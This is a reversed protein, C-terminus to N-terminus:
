YLISYDDTYKTHLTYYNIVKWCELAPMDNMQSYVISLCCNFLTEMPLHDCDLLDMFCEYLPVSFNSTNPFVNKKYATLFFRFGEHICRIASIQQAPTNERSYFM